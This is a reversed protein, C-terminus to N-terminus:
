EKLADIIERYEEQTIEKRQLRENLVQLYPEPKQQTRQARKGFHWAVVIVTVDLLFFVVAFAAATDPDLIFFMGVVIGIQMALNVLVLVLSVTISIALKM